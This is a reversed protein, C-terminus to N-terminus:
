DDHANLPAALESLEREASHPDHTNLEILRRLHSISDVDIMECKFGFHTAQRHSLSVDMVIKAGELKVTARLGKAVDLTLSPPADILLGKLSLDLLQVEHMRGDQELLVSAQFPVRQFRRQDNSQESM